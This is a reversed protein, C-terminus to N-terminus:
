EPKGKQIIKINRQKKKNTVREVRFDEDMARLIFSDLPFERRNAEARLLDCMDRVTLCGPRIIAYSPLLGPLNIKTFRM